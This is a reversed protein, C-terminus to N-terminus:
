IVTVIEAFMSKDAFQEFAFSTRVFNVTCKSMYGEQNTMRLAQTRSLSNAAETLRRNQKRRGQIQTTEWPNWPNLSHRQQRPDVAFLALLQECDTSHMRM